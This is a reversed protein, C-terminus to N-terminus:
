DVFTLEETSYRPTIGGFMPVWQKGKDKKRVPNYFEWVIEKDRTVEFARGFQNETILLNGNPLPQQQGRKKSYFPNEKTGTYAWVIEGTAPDFEAVRTAGGPGRYGRNDFVLMNGNPLPDPDHQKKWFGRKMWVMKQKEVDLLGIADLSRFSLLLQGPEAFDHHEAFDRHIPEINNTHLVDWTAAKHWSDLRTKGLFRAVAETLPIKELVKGDSSLHVADDALLSTKEFRTPLDVGGRAGFNRFEHTLTWITGDRAITIDHHDTGDFQWVVESDKNLKALGYGYPTDSGAATFNVLLDGNPFARVDRWGIASDDVPSGIHPALPWIESFKKEWKHVQNGEMDVLYAGQKHKSVYLTYGDFARKPDHTTVGKADTRPEVWYRSAAPDADINAAAKKFHAKAATFSPELLQPYPYAEFHVVAAGGLFSLLAVGVISFLPIITDFISSTEDNAM